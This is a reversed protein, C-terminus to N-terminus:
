PLPFRVLRDGKFSGIYLAGDVDVAVTAAGLPPGEHALVTERTLNAPDLAVIEFALPCAGRETRQCRIM